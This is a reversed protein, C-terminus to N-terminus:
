TGDVAAEPPEALSGKPDNKEGLLLLRLLADSDERVAAVGRSLAGPLKTADSAVAGAAAASTCRLMERVM